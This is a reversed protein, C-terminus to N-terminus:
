ISDAQASGVKEDDEKTLFGYKRAIKSITEFDLQENPFFGPTLVDAIIQFPKQGLMQALQQVTTGKSIKLVGKCPLYPKMLGWKLVQVQPLMQPPSKMVDKLDKCGDPLLYGRKMFENDHHEPLDASGLAM